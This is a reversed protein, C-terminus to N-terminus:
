HNKLTDVPNTLAAKVSQYGITLMTISIIALGSILFTFLGPPNSYAFSQLWQHILVYALPAGILFGILVLKIFHLSISQVIDRVSAGLVKRIGIEKRRYIVTFSILGLLGLCAIFITLYTFYRLMESIIEETEYEVAIDEELFYYWISFGDNFAKLQETVAELTESLETSNLSITVEDYLSPLNRLVLPDIANRLDDYHFDKVVGVITYAIVPEDLVRYYLTAGIPNTLGFKAVAAENIIVERSDDGQMTPNFGNGQVLEINFQALFYEDVSFSNVLQIDEPSEGQKYFPLRSGSDTGPSNTTYSVTSVGPIRTLEDRLLQQNEIQIQSPLSTIMIDNKKFGLDKNKLFDIQNEVAVTSIVMFIAVTFQTIVLGTKLKSKGSTPTNDSKLVTAPNFSSLVFAPYSGALVGVLLVIFGISALYIPNNFYNAEVQWDALTNFWPLALEVLVLSILVALLALIFADALFQFVLQNKYAGMVKRVGVERSRKLGQATSLNVFNICAIALILLAIASFIYVYSVDLTDGHEAYLNSFLYLDSLRQLHPEYRGIYEEGIYSNLYRSMKIELAAIDADERLLLYTFLSHAKWDDISAFTDKNLYSFPAFANFYFSSHEDRPTLVGTIEFPVEDVLITKGVPNEMGFFRESMEYTIVLSTPTSLAQEPTGYKFPYTFVDFVREDTFTIGQMMAIDQYKMPLNRGMFRVSAEIEPFAATLAQGWPSPSIAVDLVEGSEQNIKDAIRYIRDAHEHNRDFNFAYQTLLILFLCIGMGVALGATNIFAYGKQNALNRFAIKLYNRFM